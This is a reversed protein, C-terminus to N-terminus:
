ARKRTKGERDKPLRVYGDAKYFAPMVTGEFVTKSNVLIARLQAEEWRSGAGDLSPGVNGHFAQDKLDSVAHCALCNGLRRDAVVKRGNLADGPQGTLSDAVMMDVVKVDGPATEASAALPQAMVFAM